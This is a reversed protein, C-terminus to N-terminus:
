CDIENLWDNENLWDTMDTVNIVLDYDTVDNKNKDFLIYYSRGFDGDQKIVKFDKFSLTVNSFGEGEFEINDDHIYSNAINIFVDFFSEDTFSQSFTMSYNDSNLFIEKFDDIFQEMPYEILRNDEM